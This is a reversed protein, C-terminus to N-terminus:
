AGKLSFSRCFNYAVASIAFDFANRTLGRYRCRRNNLRTKLWAFPHEVFARIPAILRNLRRQQPTLEKQGRVLTEIRKQMEGLSQKDKRHEDDLWRLMQTAQSLELTERNTM